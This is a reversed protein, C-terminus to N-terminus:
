NVKKFNFSVTGFFKGTTGDAVTGITNLQTVYVAGEGIYSGSYIVVYRGPVKSNAHTELSYVYWGPGPTNYGLSTVNTAEEVDTLSVASLAPSSAIDVYALTYGSGANIVGDWAGNFLAQGGSTVTVNNELDFYTTGWNGTSGPTASLPTTFNGTYVTGVVAAKTGTLSLQGPAEATDKKCSTALIATVALLSLFKITKKM